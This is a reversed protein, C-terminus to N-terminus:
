SHNASRSVMLATTSKKVSRLLNQGSFRLGSLLNADHCFYAENVILTVVLRFLLLVLVDLLNGFFNDILHKRSFVGVLLKDLLENGVVVSRRAVTPPEQKVGCAVDDKHQMVMDGCCLLHHTGDQCLQAERCHHEFTFGTPLEILKIVIAKSVILM